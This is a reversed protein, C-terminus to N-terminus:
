YPLRKRLMSIAAPNQKAKNKRYEALVKNIDQRIEDIGQIVQKAKKPVIDQLRTLYDNLKKFNADTMIKDIVTSLKQAFPTAKLQQTLGSNLAHYAEKFPKELEHALQVLIEIFRYLDTTQQGNDKLEQAKNKLTEVFQNIVAESEKLKQATINLKESSNDSFSTKFTKEVYDMIEDFHKYISEISDTYYGHDTTAAIGIAKAQVTTHAMGLILMAMLAATKTKLYLFKM